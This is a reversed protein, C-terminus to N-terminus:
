PLIFMEGPRLWHVKQGPNKRELLDALIGSSVHNSKFLDNHVPILVDCKIDRALYMAEEGDLNGVMGQSERVADRGNVPLCAIDIKSTHSLINEEYGVYRITDGAHFLWKGGIKIVFGFYAYEGTEPDQDLGYHAAPVAYFELENSRKIKLVEPVLINTKGIGLTELHRAVPRPCVFRVKPNIKFIPIVTSPDCHDAHDHSIFVHSVSPLEEPNIPPPFARSFLETPGIGGDIVYNSLYPDILLCVDGFRVIFGAQGLYTIEVREPKNM